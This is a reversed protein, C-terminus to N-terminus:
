HVILTGYADEGPTNVQQSRETILCANNAGTELSCEVNNWQKHTKLVAAMSPALPDGAVNPSAMLLDIWVIQLLLLIYM